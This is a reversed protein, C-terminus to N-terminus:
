VNKGGNVIIDSGRATVIPASEEAKVGPKYITVTANIAQKTIDGLAIPVNLNLYHSVGPAWGRVDDAIKKYTEQQTRLIIGEMMKRHLEERQGMGKVINLLGAVLVQLKGVEKEPGLDHLPCISSDIRQQTEHDLICSCTIASM